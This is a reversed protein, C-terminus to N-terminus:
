THREQIGVGVLVLLMGLGDVWGPREGLFLTGAIVAVVPLLALMLAFRRTPMRKLVRQDIGYGIASSLMGVAICRIMLSGSSFVTGLDSAGFPLIVLAGVFLGVGLTSLGKDGASVKSGLVIYAAWCASACLMFFLGLPDGGHIEIGALVVVGTVAFALAIWNRHSRTRAAAVCIPGIFEIAVGIGLDIRSIALYFFLNMCATAVGFLAAAQVDARTWSRKWAKSFLTVGVAASAVRMVAVTSPAVQPFLKKAIVAGSYQAIASLLFLVEAPWPDLGSSPDATSTSTTSAASSSTHSSALNSTLETV